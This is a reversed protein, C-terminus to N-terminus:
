AAQQRLDLHHCASFCIVRNMEARMVIYDGKKTVPPYHAM